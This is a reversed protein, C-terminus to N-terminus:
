FSFKCRNIYLLNNVIATLCEPDLSPLDWESPWIYLKIQSENLETQQSSKQM